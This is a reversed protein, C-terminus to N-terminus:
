NRASGVKVSTANRSQVNLPIAFQLLVQIINENNELNTIEVNFQGPPTVVVPSTLWYQGTPLVLNNEDVQPLFNGGLNIDKALDQQSIYVKAGKDYVNFKFGQGPDTPLGEGDLSVHGVSISVLYSFPEISITDQFTALAAFTMDTINGPIGFGYWYYRPAACDFLRAQDLQEIRGHTMDYAPLNDLWENRDVELTFNSGTIIQPM